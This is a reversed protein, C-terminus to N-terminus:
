KPSTAVVYAKRYGARGGAMFEWIGRKEYSTSETCFAVGNQVRIYSFFSLDLDGLLWVPLSLDPHSDHPM